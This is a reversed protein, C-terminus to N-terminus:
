RTGAAPGHTCAVSVEVPAEWSRSLAKLVSLHPDGVSRSVKRHRIRASTVSSDAANIM